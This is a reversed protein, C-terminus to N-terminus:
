ISHSFQYASFSNTNFTLVVTIADTMHQHTFNFLNYEVLLTLM